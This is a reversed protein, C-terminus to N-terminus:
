ADHIQKDTKNKTRGGTSTGRCVASGGLSRGGSNSCILGSLVCNGVCSGVFEGNRGPLFFIICTHIYIYNKKVDLIHSKTKFKKLSMSMTNSHYNSFQKMHKTCFFSSSALASAWHSTILESIPFCSVGVLYSCHDHSKLLFNLTIAHSLIHAHLDM